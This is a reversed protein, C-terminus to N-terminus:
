RKRKPEDAKHSWVFPFSGKGEAYSLISMSLAASLLLRDHLSAVRRPPHPKQESLNGLHWAESSFFVRPEVVLAAGLTGFM